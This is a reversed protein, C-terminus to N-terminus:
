AESGETEQINSRTDENIAGWHFGFVNVEPKKYFFNNDEIFHMRDAYPSLSSNYCEKFSWIEIKKGKKKLYECLDTFDGDGSMLIWKDFSDMRDLCDVAIGVDHNTQKYVSHHSGRFIKIAEKIRLSYGISAMKAEFKSSDFDQSRIMYIIADTLFESERSHFYNWIKEFDVRQGKSRAAYFINQLDIQMFTPTINM